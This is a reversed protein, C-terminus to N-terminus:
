QGHYLTYFTIPLKLEAALSACAGILALALHPKGNHFPFDAHVLEVRNKDYVAIALHTEDAWVNASVAHPHRIAATIKGPPYPILM